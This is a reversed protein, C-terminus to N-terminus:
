NGFLGKLKDGLIKGAEEGVQKEVKETVKEKIETKQEDVKAKLQEKAQASLAAQVDPRFKPDALSGTIKVPIPVGALKNGTDGGQGKLSKVLEITALYDISNQPLNVTGKGDLRVLPSKAKLDQNDVVGDKIVASGTLESFDTSHLESSQGGLLAVDAKRISEIAGMLAKVSADRLVFEANGNLSRRIEPESMGVMRLDADINGTGVVSEEGTMDKVLPGVKIGDLNPKLRIKPKAQRADLEVLGDFVGEYLKAGVPALRLVGDKSKATVSVSSMRLNNIKLQGISAKADLDLTRLGAFPNAAAGGDSKGATGAAPKEEGAAGAPPLYRDLDIQDLNLEARVTPGAFSALRVFGNLNSDDLKLKLPRIEASEGEARLGFQGSVDTLADPDTTQIEAGFLAALRKLNTKQLALDANVTPATNLQSVDVQGTLSVDAGSLNLDALQLTGASQDLALDSQLEIDLGGQPLGEGAAALTLVLGKAEYRDLDSGVQLKGDIGLELTLRPKDSVLKLGGDVPVTSGPAVAGTQLRIDSVEVRQGTQRDDWVVKTDEIQVGEVAFSFAEGAEAPKEEAPAKAEAEQKAMLDEWNTRGKADKALNLNAGKLVVTDVEVRRQLLPMVKVKLALKEVQAFPEEGFGEANSLTVGGLGVALQPFVSLSLPQGITLERGTQKKVAAQIEDKYDNPDIVLPLIVVAAVVLVVLLILIGFLWKILKGM